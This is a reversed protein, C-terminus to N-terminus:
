SIFSLKSISAKTVVNGHDKSVARFVVPMKKRHVNCHHGNRRHVLMPIEVKATGRSNGFSYEVFGVYYNQLNVLMKWVDVAREILGNMNGFDVIHNFSLM